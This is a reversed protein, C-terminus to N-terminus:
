GPAPRPTTLTVVQRHPNGCARSQRTFTLPFLSNLLDMGAILKNAPKSTKGIQRRLRILLRVQKLFEKQSRLYQVAARHAAISAASRCGHKYANMKIVNKGAQTRPGTSSQWPQHRRCREAAATRQEPTWTRPM